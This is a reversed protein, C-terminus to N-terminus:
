GYAVDAFGKFIYIYIESYGFPMCRYGPDVLEVAANSLAIGARVGNGASDGTIGLRCCTGPALHTELDIM